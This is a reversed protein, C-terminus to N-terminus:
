FVPNAICIMAPPLRVIDAHQPWTNQM